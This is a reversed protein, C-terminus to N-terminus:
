DIDVREPDHITCRVERLGKIAELTQDSKIELTEKIDANTKQVKELSEDLEAQDEKYAAQYESMATVLYASSQLQISHRSDTMYSLRLIRVCTSSNWPLRYEGM